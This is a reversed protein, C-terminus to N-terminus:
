SVMRVATLRCQVTSHKSLALAIFQSPDLLVRDTANLKEVLQHKQAPNITDFFLSFGTSTLRFLNVLSISSNAPSIHPLFPAALAHCELDDELNSADRLFSNQHWEYIQFPVQSKIENFKIYISTNPDFPDDSSQVIIGFSFLFCAFFLMQKM